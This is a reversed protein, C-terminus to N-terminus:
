AERLITRLAADARQPLQGLYLEHTLAEAVYELENGSSYHSLEFAAPLHRAAQAQKSDFKSRWFGEPDIAQHLLHMMEHGVIAEGRRHLAATGARDAVIDAVGRPGRTGLGGAISHESGAQMPNPEFLNRGLTIVQRANGAFAQTKM